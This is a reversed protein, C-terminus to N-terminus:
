RDPSATQAAHSHSSLQRPHTQDFRDPHRRPRFACDAASDDASALSTPSPQAPGFIVLGTLAVEVGEWTFRREPLKRFLGTLESDSAEAIQRVLAAEGATHGGAVFALARELEALRSAQHRRAADGVLAQLRVMARRAASTPDSTIWRHGRTLTLRERIPQALRLLWETVLSAEVPLVEDQRAAAALRHELVEPAETWGGDPEVWLVSSALLAASGALHLTFGALLGETTSRVAAVGAQGSSEFQGALEARWRWLERGEAGIGAAAPLKAKRALTTHLRLRRELIPPLAFQVVEVQAHTSGYRVARGERQELRMPTWPLDYHVVRGARQLDLGEAAVDTVILHSPALSTVETNRFWGLVTDRTLTTTGIGAHEGTCWALRMQTLRNRLYCVTDRFGTFVLTPSACELIEALRKLKGDRELAAADVQRIIEDLLPLDTLELEADARPGPLLEWWVLQDGLERTVRRLEARDVPQGAAAADRACRLLRRYRRLAGALAAPSSGLARLLVGRVLAAIAENRSLRLHDLFDMQEAAAATDQETPLSLSHRQEPRRGTVAENELVLQGLAPVTRGRALMGRLSGVGHPALADDRVALLLQHTLDQMSNVIPTATVLLTPRGVLWPALHRYRRTSPNRFHHSEDVIVLGRARPPLHGRSVQEHSCLTLEVSLRAATARWQCILTAPVFCVTPGRNMAAAVALAVFTKGSGVPDALLAGRYREMAALVRRFSRVQESLLWTPAPVELEPPALSRALSAAVAAGTAPLGPRLTTLLADPVGILSEAVIAPAATWLRAFRM